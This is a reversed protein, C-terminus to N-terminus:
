SAVGTAGEGMVGGCEPCRGPTARLDYGCSPCLGLRARRYSRLWVLAWLGPTLAATGLLFWHPVRLGRTRIWSTPAMGRTSENYAFGFWQWWTDRRVGLKSPPTTYHAFGEVTQPRGLLPHRQDLSEWEERDVVWNIVGRGSILRWDDRHGAGSSTDSSASWHLVDVVSYGRVWLVAVAVFLLLSLGSLITFLRRKM